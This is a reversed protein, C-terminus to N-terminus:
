EILLIYDYNSKLGLGKLDIDQVEGRFGKNVFKQIAAESVDIGHVTVKKIKAIEEAVFGEGCGVDLITFNPEIWDLILKVRLPCRKVVSAEHYEEYTHIDLEPFVEPNFKFMFILESIFRKTLIAMPIIRQPLRSANVM